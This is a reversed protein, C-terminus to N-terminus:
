ILIKNGITLISANNTYLVLITSIRYNNTKRERQVFNGGERQALNESGRPLINGGEPCSKGVMQTLNGSGENCSAGGKRTKKQALTKRGRPLIEKGRPM